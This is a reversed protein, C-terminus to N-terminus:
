ICPQGPQGVRLDVRRPGDLSPLAHQSASREAEARHIGVEDFSGNPTRVITADASRVGYELEARSGWWAALVSGPNDLKSPPATKGTPRIPM